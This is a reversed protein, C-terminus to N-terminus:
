RGRRGGMAAAMQLVSSSLGQRALMMGGGPVGRSMLAAALQSDSQQRMRDLVQRRMQDEERSRIIGEREIAYARQVEEPASRRSFDFLQAITLHTM